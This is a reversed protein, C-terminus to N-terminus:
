DPLRELEEDEALVVVLDTRVARKGETRRNLLAVGVVSAGLL